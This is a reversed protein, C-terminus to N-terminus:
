LAAGGSQSQDIILAERARWDATEEPMTGLRDKHDDRLKRVDPDNGLTAVILTPSKFLYNKIEENSGSEDAFFASIVKQAQAQFGEPHPRLKDESSPIKCAYEARRLTSEAFLIDALAKHGPLTIDFLKNLPEIEEKNLYYMRLSLQKEAEQANKDKIGQWHKLEAKGSRNIIRGYVTGEINDIVYRTNPPKEKKILDDKKLAKEKALTAATVLYEVKELEDPWLFVKTKLAELKQMQLEVEALKEDSINKKKNLYDISNYIAAAFIQDARPTSYNYKGDNAEDVHLNKLLALPLTGEAYSRLINTENPVQLPNKPVENNLLEEEHPLIIPPRPSNIFGLMMEQTIYNLYEKNETTSQASKTIASRYLPPQQAPNGPMEKRMANKVVKSKQRMGDLGYAFIAMLQRACFRFQANFEDPTVGLIEVTKNLEQFYDQQPLTLTETQIAFAKASAEQMPLTAGRLISNAEQKLNYDYKHNALTTLPLYQRLKEPEEYAKLNLNKPDQVWSSPLQKYNEVTEQEVAEWLEKAYPYKTDDFACLLAHDRLVYDIRPDELATPSVIIINQRQNKTITPEPDAPNLIFKTGSRKIVVRAPEDMEDYIHKLAAITDQHEPLEVIDKQQKQAQAFWEDAHQQIKSFYEDTNLLSGNELRLTVGNEKMIKKRKEITNLFSDKNQLAIKDFSALLYALSLSSDPTTNILSKTDQLTLYHYKGTKEAQNVCASTLLLGSYPEISTTAAIKQPIEPENNKAFTYYKPTFIDQNNAKEASYTRALAGMFNVYFSEAIPQNRFEEEGAIGLYTNYLANNCKDALGRSSPRKVRYLLGPFFEREHDVEVKAIARNHHFVGGCATTILDMGVCKKDALHENRILIIDDDVGKGQILDTNLWWEKNENNKDKKQNLIIVPLREKSIAQLLPDPVFDRASRLNYEYIKLDNPSTEPAPRHKYIFNFMAITAIPNAEMMDLTNLLNEVTAQTNKNIFDPLNKGTIEARKDKQITEQLFKQADTAWISRPEDKAVEDPKKQNKILTNKAFEVLEPAQKRAQAIKKLLINRADSSYMEDRSLAFPAFRISEIAPQNGMFHGFASKVGGVIDLYVDNGAFIRLPVDRKDDPSIIKLENDPM